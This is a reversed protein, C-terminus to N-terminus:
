VQYAGLDQQGTRLVGAFDQFLPVYSGINEAYSGTSLKFDTSSLSALAAPVSVFLPSTKAQLSSSNSTAVLGSDISGVTASATTANPAYVLNNILSYNKSNNGLTFATAESASDARYITNNYAVIDESQPVPNSVASSGSFGFGYTYAAGGTLNVINNRASVRKVCGRVIMAVQATVSVFYNREVIVDSIREDIFTNTPAVTMTWSSNASHLFNDSIVVYDTQMGAGVLYGTAAQDAGRLTLAHKTPAPDRLTNNSIVGLHLYPYRVCHEGGTEVDVLCGMLTHRNSSLFIGICGGTPVGGKVRQVTCDVLAIEDWLSHGRYNPNVHQNWSDLTSSSFNYGTGVDHMNVRLMLLQHFGGTANCGYIDTTQGDLDMDMLRWDYASAFSVGNSIQIFNPASSKFVPTAGSGFAGIIGPGGTTIAAPVTSTDYVGGRKFLIRKYTTQNSNIAAAFDKTQLTTAGVPAGTFDASDSICLTNSAFVVEPDAVTITVTKYSISLSGGYPRFNNTLTVTYTGPTEFVHSAVPGFAVNKSLGTRPGRSWTAGGAPDGFDWSYGLDHFPKYTATAATTATSDFFVSLPAVGSVRSPAIANLIIAPAHPTITVVGQNDILTANLVNSLNVFFSRDIAPPASGGARIAEVLKKFAFAM